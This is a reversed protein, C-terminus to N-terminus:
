RFYEKVIRNPDRKEVSKMINFLNKVYNFPIMFASMCYAMVMVSMFMPNVASVGAAMSGAVKSVMFALVQFLGLVVMYKSLQFQTDRLIRHQRTPHFLSVFSAFLAMIVVGFQIVVSSIQGFGEGFLLSMGSVNLSQLLFVLMIIQLILVLVYKWKRVKEGLNKMGIGGEKNKLDANKM